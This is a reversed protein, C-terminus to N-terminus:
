GLNASRPSPVLFQEVEVGEFREVIQQQFTPNVVKARAQLCDGDERRLVNELLIRLTYPLRAVDYRGQLAEIRFIEVERGAVSLSSRAGFSDPHAMGASQLPPLADASCHARSCAPFAIRGAMTLMM